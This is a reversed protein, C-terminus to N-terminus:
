FSLIRQMLTSEIKAATPEVKYQFLRKKKKKKKENLGKRYNEKGRLAIPIQLNYM